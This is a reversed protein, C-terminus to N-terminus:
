YRILMIKPSIINPKQKNVVRNDINYELRDISLKTKADHPSIEYSKTSATKKIIHGKKIM